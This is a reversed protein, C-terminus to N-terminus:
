GNRNLKIIAIDEGWALFIADGHHGRGIPRHLRGIVTPKYLMDVAHGKLGHLGNGIDIDIDRTSWDNGNTIGSLDLIITLPGNRNRDGQNEQQQDEGETLDLVQQQYTHGDDESPQKGHAEHSDHAAVHGQDYQAYARDDYTNGDIIGKMENGVGIMTSRDTLHQLLHDGWKQDTVDRGNAGKGTQYGEIGRGQAIQAKKCGKHQHAGDEKYQDEQGMQHPTLLTSHPTLLTSHPPLLTQRKGLQGRHRGLAM